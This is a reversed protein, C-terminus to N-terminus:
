GEVRLAREVGKPGIDVLYGRLIGHNAESGPNICLTQGIRREGGSEHIHGHVGLLPEFREIIRRVAHSGVPGRLVDGASITPRLNQDLIPATDLGSDHPPVHIMFVARRPDRVEGALTELRAELADEPEERPTNWPTINSWGSALLQLDGPIDVVRGDVNQAFAGDRSLIPDIAVDDDNGPILYLPVQGQGLREDALDMWEAIRENMLEHLLRDRAEADGVLREAEEATSVFSYYGVDAIDRQLTALEEDSGARRRVGFLEAEYAAGNRVIPVIAKGTLDGAVLAVDAKYVNLKIANLFKRWAKEGAHFDSALYIRV